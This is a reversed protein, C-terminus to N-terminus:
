EKMSKDSLHFFKVSTIEDIEIVAASIPLNFRRPGASGPNIYLVGDKKEERAKHSHGTVVIQFGAAGPDIDLRGIDHLIYIFTNLVGVVETKPLKHLLAGKDVNGRVATVPAISKLKDLVEIKGIDGAHIILECDSFIRILEPRFLGHTDSVIGVKRKNM